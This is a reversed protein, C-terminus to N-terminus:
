IPLSAADSPTVNNTRPNAAPGIAHAGMDSIMPRRQGRHMPIKPLPIKVIAQAVALSVCVIISDRKKAPRKAALGIDMTGATKASRNEVAWRPTTIDTKQMATKMPGKAAGNTPPKMAMDRPQLHIMYIEVMMIKRPSM